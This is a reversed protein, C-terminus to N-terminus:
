SSKDRSSSTPAAVPTATAPPVVRLNLWEITRQWSDFAAAHSIPTASVQYFDAGVGRYEVTQVHAPSRRDQAETARGVEGRGTGLDAFLGLWPTVVPGRLETLPIQTASSVGVAAGYRTSAAASLVARAGRGYGILGIQESSWGREGLQRALQDVVEGHRQATLDDPGLHHPMSVLASEYGHEALANMVGIGDLQSSDSGVVVAAAGRPIGSLTIQAIRLTRPPAQVDIILPDIRL